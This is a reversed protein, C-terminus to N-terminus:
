LSLVPRVSITSYKIGYYLDGYSGNCFWSNGTSYESSTWYWGDLKDGGAEVLAANIEDLYACIISAQKKTPMVEGFRQMAEDWTVECGDGADHLAINFHEDITHVQVFKESDIEVISVPKRETTDSAPEVLGNEIAEKAGKFYANAINIRDLAPNPTPFEATTYDLAMHAIRQALKIEEIENAKIINKM